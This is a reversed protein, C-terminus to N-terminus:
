GNPDVFYDNYGQDLAGINTMQNKKVVMCTLLDLGSGYGSEEYHKSNTRINQKYCFDCSEHKDCPSLRGSLYILNMMSSLITIMIQVCPGIEKLCMDKEYGKKFGCWLVHWEFILTRNLHTVSNHMDIYLTTEKM